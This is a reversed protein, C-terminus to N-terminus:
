KLFLVTLSAASAALSGILLWLLNFPGVKIAQTVGVQLAVRASSKRTDFGVDVNGNIQVGYRWKAHPDQNSNGIRIGATAEVADSPSLGRKTRSDGVVLDIGFREGNDTGSVWQDLELTVLGTKDGPTTDCAEVCLGWTAGSGHKNAQVYAGCNEGDDAYNDLVMLANWEFAKVDKGGITHCYLVTNVNGRTGGSKGTTDRVFQQGGSYGDDPSNM